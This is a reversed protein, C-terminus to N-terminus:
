FGVEVCLDFVVYGLFDKGVCDFVFFYFYLYLWM